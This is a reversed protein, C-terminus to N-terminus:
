EAVEDDEDDEEDIFDDEEVDEYDDDDDDDDDDEEVVNEVEDPDEIPPDSEVQDLIIEEVEEMQTNM